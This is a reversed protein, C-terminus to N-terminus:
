KVIFTLFFQYNQLVIFPIVIDGSIDGNAEERKTVTIFEDDQVVPNFVVEAMNRFEAENNVTDIEELLIFYEKNLLKYDDPILDDTSIGIPTRFQGVNLSDIYVFVLDDLTTADNPGLQFLVDPGSGDADWPDGNPDTMSISILYMGTLFREGVKVEEVAETVQGDETYAKLKVLYNGPATYTHEPAVTLSDTNGDGFDWAYVSSNFSLNEFKVPVSVEPGLTAVIFDAKSLPLPDKESCSYIFVMSGLALGLSIKTLSKKM